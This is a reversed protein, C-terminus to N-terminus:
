INFHFVHCKGITLKLMKGKPIYHSNVFGNLIFMYTIVIDCYVIYCDDMVINCWLNSVHSPWHIFEDMMM